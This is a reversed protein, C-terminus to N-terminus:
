IKSSIKKTMSKQRKAITELLKVNFEKASNYGMRKLRYNLVVTELLLVVDRGPKVPMVCYPLKVGLIDLYKEELGVRDYFHKDDWVELKVAIDIKVRESICVAGYLHAVNIIGIGRIELMHRTLEPGSGELRTGEKKRVIVVDDTILRHGREILGLATESKGVSSDGQLLVGLGFAEVLTGHCSIAPAFEEGLAVTLNQLIQSTTLSTRFLPIKERDCLEIMEKYPKLRRSVIILPLQASLISSLRRKRIGESLRRLYEMEVRGFILIRKPSHGKLFGTLCLGPREIEPVRIARRLGEDGACLDLKLVESYRQYFDKVELMM